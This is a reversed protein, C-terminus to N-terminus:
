SVNGCQTNTVVWIGSLLAVYVISDVAITEGDALLGDADYVTVVSGLITWTGISDSTTIFALASSGADLAASLSCRM